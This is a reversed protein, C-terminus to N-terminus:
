ATGRDAAMAPATGFGPLSAIDTLSLIGLPREGAPLLETVVLRRIRRARLLAVAEALPTEPRVSVVPSSMLHRATMGRWYRMYPQIFAANILDTQSILGVALDDKMVLVASIGRERMIAAVEELGAEPSCAIVGEHMCDKVLSESM